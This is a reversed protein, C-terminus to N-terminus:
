PFQGAYRQMRIDRNTFGVDGDSWVGVIENAGRIAVDPEEQLGSVTPNVLFETNFAVGAQNYRQAFVGTLVGDDATQWAIVFDGDANLAVVPNNQAGATTTNVQFENGQAVGAASYRRAYVGTSSGDQNDSSWSLVYAGLANMGIAPGQQNLATYQNVQVEGAGIPAGAATFRRMFVGVGDGDQSNSQWVVTWEGSDAVEVVPLNQNAANANHVLQEGAIPAGGANFRRCLIDVSVPQDEWCVVFAGAPTIAIDPRRQEDAPAAAVVIEGGIPVGASSFRRAFVGNGSGDPGQWAVVFSNNIADVAPFSQNGMTTVNVLVENTVPVGLANYVRAYVGAGNGDQPPNAVPWSAWVVVFYNGDPSAAVVPSVQFDPLTTNVLVENGVPCPQACNGACDVGEEIGNAVGDSCSPAQCVGLICVGQTCDGGNGCTNGPMCTAGCSGGCDVDTENGNDVGDNCAPVSCMGGNCVGQVCDSGLNCGEGPTCTAGCSGGCDVDTENGNDVGDNCDPASCQGFECVGQVCDGSSDCDQGTVCTAGCSNGCDIDTEDGNQAGDNCLPGLCVGGMCVANICDAGSNCSSGDPCDNCQPGGCDVDTENGNEIMDICSAAICTGGSCVGNVCDSGDSCSDGNSCPACSGGCDADTEDGNEIGDNCAPVACMGGSCIHSTCDANVNCSGGPGCDPCQPGGCDVDSELTDQIENECSSPACEGDLCFQGSGCQANNICGNSTCSNPCSGGCDVGTESGNLLGDYCTPTQCFGGACIMTDCDDNSECRGGPGCPDCSGGGCDVDTEEGDRTGNECPGAPGGSSDAADTTSTGTDMGTGTTQGGELSGIGTGGDAM